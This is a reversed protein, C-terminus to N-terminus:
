EDNDKRNLIKDVETIAMNIDKISVGLNIVFKEARGKPKHYLSFGTFRHTYLDRTELLSYGDDTKACTFNNRTTIIWDM